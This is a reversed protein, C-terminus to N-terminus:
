FHTKAFNRGAHTKLYKEFEAARTRHRLAIAAKLSWPIFKSTHPAHGGNHYLLREHLNETLGVYYRGPIALSELIYVYTFPGPAAM